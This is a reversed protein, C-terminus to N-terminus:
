KWRYRPHDNGFLPEPVPKPGVSWVYDENSQVPQLNRHEVFIGSMGKAFRYLTPSYDPYFHGSYVCPTRYGPHNVQTLSALAINNPVNIVSQPLVVYVTLGFPNTNASSLRMPYMPHAAPFRLHLPALTGTALGRAISPVKVRSAVFTWHRDVYWQLPQKAADPLKYQNVKLWNLLAGADSADLVSVDYAGVTKREIVNVKKAREMEIGETIGGSKMPEPPYVLNALDHFLAGKVISVKPRAPVPVVWAFETADGKFSPSIVLDETSGDFFVAAKQDLETIHRREWDGNDSWRPMMIGDAVAPTVSGLIGCIAAAAIAKKM